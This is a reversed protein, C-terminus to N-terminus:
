PLDKEMLFQRTLFFFIIAAVIFGGLLWLVEVYGAYHSIIFLIGIFCVILLALGGQLILRYIRRFRYGYRFLVFFGATSLGFLAAFLSVYGTPRTIFGNPNNKIRMATATMRNFFKRWWSLEDKKAVTTAKAKAVVEKLAFKEAMLKWLETYGNDYGLAWIGIGGIKKGKVWDYKKALSTSDDYWLQRYLNNGDRHVYYKSMSFEDECCALDGHERKINRYMPYRLFKKVSSPFKLDETAWEAGYYPLGLLLKQPSVGAVLYEDVSRELNFEWWTTGSGVPSLPGAVKSTQGYYEYGMIVFMDIYKNLQSIEYVRDFDIAPLAITIMYNKNISRLSTSLDIIFNSLKNRCSSPIEEFDINVGDANRERILTILTNIFTRQAAISSLFQLNNKQGFNTVSLVVKCGHAHASDVLNTTKWDHITKYRGTAPDMEYSFYAVTNLLSFNYSKYATGMWFPHWGFVKNVSDRKHEKKYANVNNILLEKEWADERSVLNDFPRRNMVDFNRKKFEATDFIRVQDTPVIEPITDKAKKLRALSDLLNKIIAQEDLKAKKEAAKKRNEEDIRKEIESKPSPTTAPSQAM